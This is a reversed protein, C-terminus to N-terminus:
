PVDTRLGPDVPDAKRKSLYSLHPANLHAIIKDIQNFMRPISQEPRLDVEPRYLGQQPNHICLRHLNTLIAHIKTRTSILVPM